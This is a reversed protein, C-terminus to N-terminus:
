RNKGRPARRFDTLTEWRDTRDMTASLDANSDKIQPSDNKIEIGMLTAFSQANTKEFAFSLGRIARPQCTMTPCTCFLLAQRGKDSRSLKRQREIAESLDHGEDGNGETEQSEQAAM